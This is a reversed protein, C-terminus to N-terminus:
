RGKVVLIWEGNVSTVRRDDVPQSATAIRNNAPATFLLAVPTAALLPMLAPVDHFLLTMRNDHTIPASAVNSVDAAPPPWSDSPREHLEQQKVATRVDHIAVVRSPRRTSTVRTTLQLPGHMTEDFRIYSPAVLLIDKIRPRSSTERCDPSTATARSSRLMDAHRLNQATMALVLCQSTTLQNGLSQNTSPSITMKTDGVPPTATDHRTGPFMMLRLVSRALDTIVGPLGRPLTSRLRARFTRQM